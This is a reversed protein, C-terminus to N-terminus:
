IMAHQAFGFNPSVLLSIKKIDIERNSFIRM